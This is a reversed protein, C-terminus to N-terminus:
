GFISNAGSKALYVIPDDVINKNAGCLKETLMIIHDRIEDFNSYKKSDGKFIGWPQM